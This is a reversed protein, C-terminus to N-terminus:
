NYTINVSGTRFTDTGGLTTLRIRTLTSAIAKGGGGVQLSTGGTLNSINSWFNTSPDQLSLVISGNYGNVATNGTTIGIGTTYATVAQATGGNVLGGVGTLYGTTEISSATGLQLMYTSTGNTGFLNLLFTVRKVWSPIGTFDISTVATSTVSTASTIISSAPSTWTAGSLTKNTLTQAGGTGAITTTGAPLTVTYTGTTNTAALEISGGGTSAITLGM